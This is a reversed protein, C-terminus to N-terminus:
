KKEINVLETRHGFSIENDIFYIKFPTLKYFKVKAVKNTIAQGLKQPSLLFDSVTSFKKVYAKALKGNKLISGVEEIRGEMQIGKILLWNSCDENIAGSVQPNYSFNEGHRSFPSSLFYLNLGINFYFVTAVHPTGDRETALAITNHNEIFALITKKLEEKKMVPTVECAVM